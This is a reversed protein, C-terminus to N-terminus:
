VEYLLKKKALEKWYSAIQRPLVHWMEKSYKSKAYDLLELYLEVPFYLFKTKSLAVFGESNEAIEVESVDQISCIM